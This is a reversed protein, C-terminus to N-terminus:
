DSRYSNTQYQEKRKNKRNIKNLLNEKLSFLSFYNKLINKEYFFINKQFLKKFCDLRFM